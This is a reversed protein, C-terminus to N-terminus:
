ELLELPAHVTFPPLIAIDLPYYIIGYEELIKCFKDTDLDIWNFIFENDLLFTNKCIYYRM